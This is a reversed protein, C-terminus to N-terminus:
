RMKRLDKMAEVLVARTIISPVRGVGLRACIRECLACAWEDAIMRKPKVNRNLPLPKVRDTVDWLIATFGTVRCVVEGLERVVGMDRLETFRARSQTLAVVQRGELQHRIIEASTGPGYRYLLEYVERRRQPLVENAVLYDYAALSTARVGGRLSEEDYEDYEDYDYEGM